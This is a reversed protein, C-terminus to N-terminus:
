RVEQGAMIVNRQISQIVVRGHCVIKYQYTNSARFRVPVRQSYVRDPVHAKESEYIEAIKQPNFDDNTHYLKGNLLYGCMKWPLGDYSIYISADSGPEFELIFNLSVVSRLYSTADTFLKSTISYEIDEEGDAFKYVDHETAAYLKGRYECFDVIALDDEIIFVDKETDYIILERIGDEDTASIYVKSGYACSVASKYKRTGLKKDFHAPVSSSYVYFGDSALYYLHNNLTCISRGDICGPTINKGLSFNQPNDGFIVYIINKKFCYLYNGCVAIGVWEGPSSVDYQWSSTVLIDLSSFNTPDSLKSAYISKGYLDLAFIRGNFECSYAIDPIYKSIVLGSGSLKFGSEPVLSGDPKYFSAVDGQIDRLMLKFGTIIDRSNRKETFIDTVLATVIRKIPKTIIEGSEDTQVNGNVDLVPTGNQYDSILQEAIYPNSSNFTCNNFTDTTVYYINVFDGVSIDIEDAIGFKNFSGGSGGWRIESEGNGSASADDTATYFTVDAKAANTSISKKKKELGLVNFGASSPFVYIDDIYPTVSHPITSQLEPYKTADSYPFPLKLNSDTSIDINKGRYYLKDGAIGTFSFEDDDSDIPTFITEISDDVHSIHRRPARPSVYPFKELGCNKMDSFENDQIMNSRNLGAFNESVGTAISTSREIQPFYM